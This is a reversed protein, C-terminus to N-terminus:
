KSNELLCIRRFNLGMRSKLCQANKDITWKQHIKLSTPYNGLVVHNNKITWTGKTSVKNSVSNDLYSFTHDPNLQLEIPSAIKAESCCANVGYKGLIPDNKFTDIQFSLASFALLVLLLFKSNNMTTM